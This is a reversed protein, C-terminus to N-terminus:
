ARFRILSSNDLFSSTFSSRFFRSFKIRKHDNFGILLRSLLIKFASQDIFIKIIKCSRLYQVFLTLFNLLVLPFVKFVGNVLKECPTNLFWGTKEVLDSGNRLVSARFDPNVGAATSMACDKRTKNGNNKRNYRHTAPTNLM